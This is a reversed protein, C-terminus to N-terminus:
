FHADNKVLLRMQEARPDDPNTEADFESYFHWKRISKDWVFPCLEAYKDVKVGCTFQTGIMPLVLDMETESVKKAIAYKQACLIRLVEIAQEEPLNCYMAVINSWEQLRRTEADVLKANIKKETESMKSVTLQDKWPIASDYLRTETAPPLMNIVPPNGDKNLGQVPDIGKEYGMLGKEQISTPAPMYIYFTHAPKSLDFTNEWTDTNRNRAVVTAKFGLGGDKFSPTKEVYPKGFNAAKKKAEENEKALADLYGKQQFIDYILLKVKEGNVFDPADYVQQTVENAFPSSYGM